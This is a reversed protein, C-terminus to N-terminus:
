KRLPTREVHNDWIRRHYCVAHQKRNLGSLLGNLTRNTKGSGLIFDIVVRQRGLVAGSGDVIQNEVREIRLRSFLKIGAILDDGIPFMEALRHHRQAFNKDNGVISMDVREPKLLDFPDFMSLLRSNTSAPNALISLLEIADPAAELDRSGTSGLM